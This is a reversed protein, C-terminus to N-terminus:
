FNCIASEENKNATALTNVTLYRYMFKLVAPKEGSTKGYKEMYNTGM